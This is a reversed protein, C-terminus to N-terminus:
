RTFDLEVNEKPIGKAMADTGARALARTSIAVSLLQNPHPDDRNSAV